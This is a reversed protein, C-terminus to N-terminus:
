LGKRQAAMPDAEISSGDGVRSRDVIGGFVEFLLEAIALQSAATTDFKQAIWEWSEDASCFVVKDSQAHAIMYVDGVHTGIYSSAFTTPNESHGGGPAGVTARVVAITISYWTADGPMYCLEVANGMELEARAAAALDRIHDHDLRNIVYERAKPDNSLIM